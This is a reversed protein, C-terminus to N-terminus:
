STSLLMKYWCSLIVAPINKDCCRCPGPSMKRNQRRALEGQVAKGGEVDEWVDDARCDRLIRLCVRLVWNSPEARIYIYTVLNQSQTENAPFLGDQIKPVQVM